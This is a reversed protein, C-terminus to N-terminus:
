STSRCTPAGCSLRHEVEAPGACGSNFEDSFALTYDDLDPAERVPDPGPGPDDDVPTDAPILWAPDRGQADDIAAMWFGDWPQM